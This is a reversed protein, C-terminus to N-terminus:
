GVRDDGAIVVLEAGEALKAAARDIPQVPKVGLRRALRRADGRRGPAYMVVTQSYPKPSSSVSELDYGNVRVDDGVKGGLGPLDSGNLVTVSTEPRTTTAGQGSDGSDELLQISGLFIGAGVLFAGAAIVMPHRPEPLRRIIRRWLPEEAIRAREVTVRALAPREATIREAARLRDAEVAAPAGLTVFAGTVPEGREPELERWRRLRHVDHQQALYLPLLLLIGATAGIAAWSGADRLIEPM